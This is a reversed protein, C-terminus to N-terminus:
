QRPSRTGYGWGLPAQSGRALACIRGIASRTWCGIPQRGGRFSDPGARSYRRWLFYAGALLAGWLIEMLLSYSDLINEGFFRNRQVNDLIRLRELGVAVLIFALVDALMAAFILTGLSLFPEMRKAAFGLGFHGVLM